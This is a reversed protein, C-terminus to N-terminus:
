GASAPPTDHQQLLAKRSAALLSLAESGGLARAVQLTGVLSAAIVPAASQRGPPLAQEVLRILGQVRRASADRLEAAQRPMEGGLAAVPCGSDTAHLHEEGLYAEVLARFPSARRSRRTQVAQEVAALSDRGARELAEALLAERSAFHAYFGGHTLGAERMVDAVGVGAYGNRRLARSAVAVIRDHTEEKRTQPTRAM